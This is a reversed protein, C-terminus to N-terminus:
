LISAQRYGEIPIPDLVRGDKISEIWLIKVGVIKLKVVAIFKVQAAFIHEESGCGNNSSPEAYPKIGVM